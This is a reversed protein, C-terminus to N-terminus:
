VQTAPVQAPTHPGPWLLATAQPLQPLSVCVQLAVPVHISPAHVPCPTQAVPATWGHLVYPVCVHVVPHPQPTQEHASGGSHLGPLM